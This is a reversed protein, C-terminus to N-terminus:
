RGGAAGQVDADEKLYPLVFTVTTGEGEVSDMHIGYRDGYMLVLRRHLNHLGIHPARNDQSLMIARVEELREMSMGGGDDKVEIILDAAKVYGVVTIAVSQRQRYGYKIANEIVPQLMLRPVLAAKAAEGVKEQYRLRDKFRMQQLKMYGAIYELDNGLVVQDRENGISYRLHRSLTLVIDQALKDDVVIAYRLMELVNFIFHPHFQSQLHKVEIVRRLDSLEENKAVLENLRRLMLNYQNALTEFEDGTGIYVYSEMNGSQLERVAFTLKDMARSQRTSIIRASYRILIWLLLSALIFFVALSLYAAHNWQAASLTYIKWQSAPVYTEKSYYRGKDIWVYGKSDRALSYKNMLGRTLNNTTAIINHYSDTVVAIENNQVFILKQFDEEYLQYILYGVIAEGHRIEKAFTYATYRDHSFRLHNTEALASLGQRYMRRAITQVALDTADSSYNASSALMNGDTGVIHMISKVRQRNNFDYFREFVEPGNRRSEVFSIVTGLEAAENMEELYSAYVEEVATKIKKGADTTQGILLLRSNIMMFLLFLVFLISIPVLTHFLFMRRLSDKFSGKAM